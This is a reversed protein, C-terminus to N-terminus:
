DKIRNKRYELFDNFFMRIVCILPVGLFMGLFGFLSGFITISCIIWFPSIGVSDGLIRPGLILGDFQQLAFIFLATWIAPMIGNTLLVIFVVPVGGIFPGFYPIMNTIFVVFALLPFFPLGMLGFGVLAILGIIVSDIFKGYIFNGFIRHSKIAYGHILNLNEQSIFCLMFRDFIRALKEAEILIYPCFILGMLITLLTSGTKGAFAIVEMFDNASLSKISDVFTQEVQIITGALNPDEFSSNISAEFSKVYTDINKAFEVAYDMVMPILWTLLLIIMLIVALSVLLVSLVRRHKKLFSSQCNEFLKTVMQVLPELFYALVGGIIIPFCANLLVSFWSPEFVKYVVILLIGTILLGSYQKLKDKQM